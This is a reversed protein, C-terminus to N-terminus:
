PLFFSSLWQTWLWLLSTYYRIINMLGQLICPSSAVSLIDQHFSLYDPVVKAFKAIEQLIKQRCEATIEPLSHPDGPPQWPIWPQKPRTNDEDSRPPNQDEPSLSPLRSGFRSLEVAAAQSSHM